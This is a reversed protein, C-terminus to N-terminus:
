LRGKEVYQSQVRSDILLVGDHARPHWLGLPDYVLFDLIPHLRGDGVLICDCESLHVHSDRNWTVALIKKTWHTRGQSLPIRSKSSFSPRGPGLDVSEAVVILGTRGHLAHACRSIAFPETRWGVDNQLDQTVREVFSLNEEGVVALLQRSFCDNNGNTSCHRFNGKMLTM